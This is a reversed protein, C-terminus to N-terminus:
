SNVRVNRQKKLISFLKSIECHNKVFLPEIGELEVPGYFVCYSNVTAIDMSLPWYFQMVGSCQKSHLFKFIVMNGDIALARGYYFHDVFEVAYYREEEIQVSPLSVIESNEKDSTGDNEDKTMDGSDDESSTGTGEEDDEDSCSDDAEDDNDDDHDEDCDSEHGDGNM